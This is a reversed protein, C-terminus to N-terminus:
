AGAARVGLVNGEPDVFDWGGWPRHLIPVDLGQLRALERDIDAVAFILKCSQQERPAPPSGAEATPASQMPIAHLALGGGGGAIKFDVWDATRTAEDPQLGLVDRYFATMRDLDAVFIMAKDLRM